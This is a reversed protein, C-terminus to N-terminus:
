LVQEQLAAQRGPGRWLQGRVQLMGTRQKPFQANKTVQATEPEHLCNSHQRLRDGRPSCVADQPGPLEHRLGLLQRDM